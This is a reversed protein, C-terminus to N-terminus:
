LWGLYICLNEQIMPLRVLGKDLSTLFPHGQDLGQDLSTRLQLILDQNREPLVPGLGKARNTPLKHVQQDQDEQSRLDRDTQDHRGQGIPIPQDQGSPNHLVQDRLNRRDQDIPIHQDQDIQIFLLHDLLYHQDQDTLVLQDRDTLIPQDQGTPNLQLQDLLKVEQPLLLTITLM